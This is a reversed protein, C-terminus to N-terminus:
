WRYASGAAPLRIRTATSQSSSAAQVALNGLEAVDGLGVDRERGSLVVVEVGGEGDCGRRGGSRDVM